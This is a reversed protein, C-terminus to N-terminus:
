INAKGILRSDKIVLKLEIKQLYDISDKLCGITITM